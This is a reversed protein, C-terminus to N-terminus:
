EKEARDESDYDDPGIYAYEENADYWVGNNCFPCQIIIYSKNDNYQRYLRDKEEKSCFKYLWEDDFAFECGCYNCTARRGIFGEKLIKIVM